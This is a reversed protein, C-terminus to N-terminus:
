QPFKNKLYELFPIFATPIAYAEDIEKLSVWQYNPDKEFVEIFFSRMLWKKHTFIHTNDCAKLISANPFLSSVKVKSLFLAVNPFEWMNKLLGDGRKRLAVEGQCWLLFVTYKEEKKLPKSAKRPIVEQIGKEKALCHQRIPCIDCRPIGNPICIIEGLEMLAQNFEGPDPPLINRITQAVEKKVKSDWVNIDLGEVRSYVRMVNGDIAVQPLRFCISSIAGATYEGIGPLTLIEEYTNPFIGRYQEMILIAARKLNRARSYYGLGEWLKLLEDESIESLSKIDPLKEMFRAYYSIVAEIRTQQLMIESIWVHYPNTDRRWPLDRKQADYWSLLDFVIREM